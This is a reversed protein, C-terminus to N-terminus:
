RSEKHKLFIQNVQCPLPPSGYELFPRRPMNFSKGQAAGGETEADTLADPKRGKM